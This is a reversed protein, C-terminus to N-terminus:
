SQRSEAGTDTLQDSRLHSGIDYAYYFSGLDMGIQSQCEGSMRSLNPWDLDLNGPANKRRSNLVPNGKRPSSPTNRAASLSLPFVLSKMGVKQSTRHPSVGWSEKGM